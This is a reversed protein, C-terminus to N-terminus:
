SSIAQTVVTYVFGLKLEEGRSVFYSCTYRIFLCLTFSNQLVIETYETFLKLTIFSSKDLFSYLFTVEMM